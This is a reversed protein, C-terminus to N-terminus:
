PKSVEAPLLSGCNNPESTQKGNESIVTRQKISLNKFVTRKDTKHPTKQNTSTSSYIQNRIIEDQTFASSVESTKVKTPILKAKKM